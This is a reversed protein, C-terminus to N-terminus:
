SNSTGYGTLASYLESVEQVQVPILQLAENAANLASTLQTQQASVNAKLATLTANLSTEQSANDSAALTLVSDPEANGDNLLVTALSEGVGGANQFLGVIGNFNSNLATTLTDSDLTLTGDSNLTIGATSLNLASSGSGTNASIAGSLDNQITAILPNGYLPSAAGASTNGEQAGLATVVANYDSVLSAVATSVSSVDNTIEVQVPTTSADLLQFTVGPIITSVTNSSSTAAIGDVMLTADAGPTATAFTIATNTTADTLQSADLTITGAAGSTSSTLSLQEGLNGTIVSATVGAGSANIAAAFSSITDGSGVPVAVTNGGVTISLTGALTDTSAVPSAYKSSTSALTEVTISHSGAVAGTGASTLELVNTNSSSGEMSALTGTPSTFNTIDNSLNNMLTGLKSIVTDQSTLTALQNTYPTETEALNAVIAAVTTTVDFGQGSTPSGFNLGIAGM